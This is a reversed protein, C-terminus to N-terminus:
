SFVENITVVHHKRKGHKQGGSGRDAVAGTSEADENSTTTTKWACHERPTRSAISSEL